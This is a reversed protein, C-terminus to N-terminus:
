QQSEFGSWFQDYTERLPELSQSARNTVQGMAEGLKQAAPKADEINRALQAWRKRECEGVIETEEYPLTHRVYAQFAWFEEMAKADFNVAKSQKLAGTMARCKDVFIGILLERPLPSTSASPDWYYRWVLDDLPEFHGSEYISKHLESQSILANIKVLRTREDIATDALVGSFETAIGDRKVKAAQENRRDVFNIIQSVAVLILAGIGWKYISRM